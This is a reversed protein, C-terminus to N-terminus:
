INNAFDPTKLLFAHFRASMRDTEPEVLTMM